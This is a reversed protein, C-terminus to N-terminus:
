FEYVSCLATMKFAASAYMLEIAYNIAPPCADHTCADDVCTSVEPPSAKTMGTYIYHRIDNFAEFGVKWHPVLDTMLYKPRGESVSADSSLNFLSRVAHLCYAAILQWQNARLLSRLM